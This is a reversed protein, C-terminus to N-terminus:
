FSNIKGPLTLNYISSLNDSFGSMSTIGNCNYNTGSVMPSLEISIQSTDSTSATATVSDPHCIMNTSNCNITIRSYYGEPRQFNVNATGNTTTSSNFKLNKVVDLDQTSLLLNVRFSTM